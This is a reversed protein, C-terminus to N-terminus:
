SIANDAEPAEFLDFVLVSGDPFTGSGARLVKLAKENAGSTIYEVSDM